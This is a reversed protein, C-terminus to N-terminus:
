TIDGVLSNCDSIPSYQLINPASPTVTTLLTRTPPLTTSKVTSTPKLIPALSLSNDIRYVEKIFHEQIGFLTAALAIRDALARGSLRLCQGDDPSGCPIVM